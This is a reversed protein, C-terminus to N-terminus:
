SDSSLEAAHNDKTALLEPANTKQYIPEKYKSLSKDRKKIEEIQAWKPFMKYSTGSYKLENNYNYLNVIVDSSSSVLKYKDFAISIM